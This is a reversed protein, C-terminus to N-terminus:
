GDRSEKQPLENLFKCYGFPIDFRAATHKLVLTYSNANPPLLVKRFQECKLQAVGALGMYQLDPKKATVQVVGYRQRSM